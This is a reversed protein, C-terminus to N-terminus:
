HLAQATWKLVLGIAILVGTLLLAAAGSGAGLLILVVALSGAYWQTRGSVGGGFSRLKEALEPDDVKINKEIARLARQEQRNM